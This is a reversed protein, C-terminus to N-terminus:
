IASECYGKASTQIFVFWVEAEVMGYLDRVQDLKSQHMKIVVMNVFRLHENDTKLLKIASQVRSKQAEIRSKQERM